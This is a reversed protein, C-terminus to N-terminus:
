FKMKNSQWRMLKSFYPLGWGIGFMDNLFPFISLIGFLWRKSTYNFGQLISPNWSGKGWSTKNLRIEPQWSVSIYPGETHLKPPKPKPFPGIRVTTCNDSASFNDCINNPHTLPNGHWCDIYPHFDWFYHSFEGWIMWPNIPNEMIYVM